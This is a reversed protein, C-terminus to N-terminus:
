KTFDFLTKTGQNITKLTKSVTPDVKVEKEEKDIHEIVKKGGIFVVKGFLIGGDIIVERLKDGM